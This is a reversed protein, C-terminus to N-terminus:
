RFFILNTNSLHWWLWNSHSKWHNETVLALIMHISEPVQSVIHTLDVSVDWLMICWHVGVESVLTCTQAHSLQMVQHDAAWDLVGRFLLLKERHIPLFAKMVLCAAEMTWYDSISHVRILENPGDTAMHRPLAQGAQGPRTLHRGGGGECRADPLCRCMTVFVNYSYVAVYGWIDYMGIQQHQLFWYQKWKIM